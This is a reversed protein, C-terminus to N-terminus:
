STVRSSFFCNGLVITGNQLADSQLNNVQQSAHTRLSVRQEQRQAKRSLLNLHSVKRDDPIGKCVSIGKGVTGTLHWLMKSTNKVWVNKADDECYTCRMIMTGDSSSKFIELRKDEWVSKLDGLAFAGSLADDDGAGM